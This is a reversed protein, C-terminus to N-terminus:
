ICKYTNRDLERATLQIGDIYGGGELQLMQYITWFQIYSSSPPVYGM